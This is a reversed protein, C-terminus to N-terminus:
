EPSPTFQFLLSVTNNTQVSTYSLDRFVVLRQLEEVAPDIVRMKMLSWKSYSDPLSWREFLIRASTQYQGTSRFQALAAYLRQSYKLKILGLDGAMSITFPIDFAVPMLYKKLYENIQIWCYGREPNRTKIRTSAWDAEIEVEEDDIVDYITVSQGKFADIAERLDKKAERGSLQFWNAYEEASLKFLGNEPWNNEQTKWLCMYLVRRQDKTLNDKAHNLINAHRIKMRKTISM